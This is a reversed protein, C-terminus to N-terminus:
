TGCFTHCVREHLQPPDMYHAFTPHNEFPKALISLLAEFPAFDAGVVIILLLRHLTGLVHRFAKRCPEVGGIESFPQFDSSTDCAM